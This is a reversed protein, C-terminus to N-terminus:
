DWSSFSDGHGIDSVQCGQQIRGQKFRRKYVYKISGKGEFDIDLFDAHLHLDSLPLLFFEIKAGIASLQEGMHHEAFPKFKKELAKYDTGEDLLLYTAYSFSLWAEM